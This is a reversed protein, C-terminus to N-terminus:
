ILYGSGRVHKPRVGFGSATYFAQGVNWDPVDRCAGKGSIEQLADSWSASAAVPVMLVWSLSGSDNGKGIVTIDM